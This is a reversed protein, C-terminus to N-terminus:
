RRDLGGRRRPSGVRDGSRRDGCGASRVPLLDLRGPAPRGGVILVGVAALTVEYLAFFIADYSSKLGWPVVM